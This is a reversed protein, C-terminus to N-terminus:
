TCNRLEAPHCSARRPPVKFHECIDKGIYLVTLKECRLKYCLDQPLRVDDLLNLLDEIMGISDRVQAQIALAELWHLFHTKLFQQVLDGDQIKRSSEKWHYVWYQSAYKIEPPLSVDIMQQSINCREAGPHKLGCIDRRLNNGASLLQLCQTAINAHSERENILFPCAEGNTVRNTHVLFDRFSLHLLRVPFSPNSPVNLVSHLMSLHEDIVDQRLLLIRSLARTTLPTALLVISGVIYRFQQLVREKENGRLGQILTSLVSMYTIYLGDSWGEESNRLIEILKARPSGHRRDDLFRCITAAVIFLPVAMNVLRDLESPSPWDEPVLGRHEGRIRALNYGLFISIDRQIQPRPIEQLIIDQYTGKVADFGIQIPLEPRSTVFVRLGSLRNTRTFLSIILKARNIASDGLECEDLADILIIIPETTTSDSSLFKSLPELILKDFQERLSKTGVAADSDVAQKIYTAIDPIRTALQSAVTTFLKQSIGRDAEGRKFFFSAGLLGADDLRRAFSRSITSKGTGATGRLWFVSKSDPAKAWQM